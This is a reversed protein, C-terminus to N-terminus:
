MRSIILQRSEQSGDARIVSLFYVGSAYNNVRFSVVAGASASTQQEQMVQGTISILRVTVTESVNVASGLSVNVYDRAPNPFFSINGITSTRVVKVESYNFSNDLDVLQLRYFNNGTLPHEDTFRYETETASNGRAQVTGLDEWNEGDASRQITIHSSNTEQLTNWSLGVTKDSNLIATFVDLVIPLTNVPIVGSANLSAPGYVSAMNCAHPYGSGCNMTTSLTSYSKAAHSSSSTSPYYTFSSWNFYTNNDNGLGITSKDYINLAPGSIMLSASSTQSGNGVAIQSNNTLNVSTSAGGTSLMSSNDYLNIRSANLDVEYTTIISSGNDFTFTSNTLSLPADVTILSNGTATLTTGSFSTPTLSGAYLLTLAKGPILISGGDFSCNMCTVSQDVTLTASGSIDITCNICSTPISSSWNSSSTIKYTTQSLASLTILTLFFTYLSRKM